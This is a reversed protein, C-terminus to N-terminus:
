SLVIMVILVLLILGLSVYFGWKIRQQRKVHKEYTTLRRRPSVNTPKSM